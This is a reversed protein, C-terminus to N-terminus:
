AYQSSLNKQIGIQWGQYAAEEGEVEEGEWEGRRGLTVLYKDIHKINSEKTLRLILIIDNSKYYIVREDGRSTSDNRLGREFDQGIRVQIM